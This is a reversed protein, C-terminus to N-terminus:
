AFLWNTQLWKVEADLAQSRLTYPGLRPGSCPALDAFWQGAEDPEVNSGREITIAGLASPVILESYIMRVSGDAEILLECSENPKSM